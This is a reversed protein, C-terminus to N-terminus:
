AQFERFRSRRAARRQRRHPRDDGPRAPRDARPQRAGRDKANRRARADRPRRGILAPQGRWAIKLMAGPELKGIDIEVPAGLAKARASPKWSALFPVAAFGVGVAGTLTTAVTLLHRRGRDVADSM